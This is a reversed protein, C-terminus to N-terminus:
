VIPIVAALIAIDCEDYVGSLTDNFSVADYQITSAGFKDFGQVAQGEIIVKFVFIVAHIVSQPKLSAKIVFLFRLLFNSRTNFDWDVKNRM